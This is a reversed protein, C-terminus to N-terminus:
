AQWPPSPSAASASANPASRRHHHGRPRTCRNRRTRTLHSMRLTQTELSSERPLSARMSTRNRDTEPCPNSCPMVTVARTQLAILAATLAVPRSFPNQMCPFVDDTGALNKKSLLIIGQATTAICYEYQYTTDSGPRRPERSEDRRFPRCSPWCILASRPWCTAPLSSQVRHIAAARQAKSYRGRNDSAM